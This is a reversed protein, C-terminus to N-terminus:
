IYNIRLGLFFIHRNQTVTQLFNPLNPRYTKKTNKEKKFFQQFHVNKVSKEGNENKEEEFDLLFKLTPPTKSPLTPNGSVFM